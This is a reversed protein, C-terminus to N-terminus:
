RNNSMRGGHPYLYESMSPSYLRVYKYGNVQSLLNHYPDHHLPSITNTPGIWANLIIEDAIIHDQHDQHHTNNINIVNSNTVSEKSDLSIKKVPSDPPFLQSASSQQLVYPISFSNCLSPPEIKKIEKKSLFINEKERLKEKVEVEKELVEEVEEEEERDNEDETALLACYDPIIVDRLLEPIQDFLRHQALYGVKARRKEHYTNENENENENGHGNVNEHENKDQNDTINRNYNELHSEKVNENDIKDENKKWGEKHYRQNGDNNLNNANSHIKDVSFPRVNSFADIEKLIIKRKRSGNMHSKDLHSGKIHSSIFDKMTM